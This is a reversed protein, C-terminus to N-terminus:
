ALRALRSALMRNTIVQLAPLRLGVRVSAVLPASLATLPLRQLLRQTNGMPVFPLVVLVKCATFALLVHLVHLRDWVQSSRELPARFKSETPVTPGPQAPRARLPM